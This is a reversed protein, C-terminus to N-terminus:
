NNILKKWSKRLGAKLTWTLIFEFKRVPQNFVLINLGPVMETMQIQLDFFGETIGGASVIDDDIKTSIIIKKTIYGDKSAEIIYDEGYELSFNFRGNRRSITQSKIKSNLVVNIVGGKISKSNHILIGEVELNIASSNYSGTLFFIFLLFFSIILTKCKM